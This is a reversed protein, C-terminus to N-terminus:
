LAAVGEERVLREADAGARLEIGRGVLAGTRAAEEVGLTVGRVASEVTAPRGGAPAALGLRLVDARPASRVTRPLLLPAGALALAHLFGRRGIPPGTPPDPANM